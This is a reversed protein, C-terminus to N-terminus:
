LTTDIEATYCLSGNMGLCTNSKEYSRGDHHMGLSQVCNGMGYLLVEISIWELHLLKCRNVGFEWDKGIGGGRKNWEQNNM